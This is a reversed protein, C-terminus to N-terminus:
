KLEHSWKWGMNHIILDWITFWTLGRQILIEGRFVLLPYVTEFTHGWHGLDIVKSGLRVWIGGRIFRFHFVLKIFLELLVPINGGGELNILSKDIKDFYEELQKDKLNLNKTTKVTSFQVASITPLMMLMCVALLSGIVIKQKKKKM